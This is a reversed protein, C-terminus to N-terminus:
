AARDPQDSVGPVTPSSFVTSGPWGAQEVGVGCWAEFYPHPWGASDISIDGHGLQAPGGHPYMLRENGGHGLEAGLSAAARFVAAHDPGLQAFERTM